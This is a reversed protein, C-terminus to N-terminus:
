RRALRARLAKIRDGCRKLLGTHKFLREMVKIALAHEKPELADLLHNDGFEAEFRQVIPRAAAEATPDLIRGVAGELATIPESRAQPLSQASVTSTVACTSEADLERINGHTMLRGYGARTKGGVGRTELADLLHGLALRAAREHRSTVAVLFRASPRVTLFSVPIPSDWDTPAERGQTRYYSSQHPTLVDKVLTRGDKISEPVYWADEFVVAGRTGDHAEQDGTEPLKPAGFLTGHVSGPPGIPNGTKKDYQVGRWREGGDGPEKGAVEAIYHNVLGKLASGPIYAVGYTPHLTMGVEVGSPNGHGLLLRSSARVECVFARGEALSRFWRAYAGRYFQPVPISIVRDLFDERDGHEVRGRGEGLELGIPACREFYLSAHAGSLQPGPKVASVSSVGLAALTANRM